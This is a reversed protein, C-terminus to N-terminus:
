VARFHPEPDLDLATNEIAASFGGAPLNQELVRVALVKEQLSIETVHSTRRLEVHFTIEKIKSIVQVNLTQSITLYIKNLQTMPLSSLYNYLYLQQQIFIQCYCQIIRKTHSYATLEIPLFQFSLHSSSIIQNERSYFNQISKVGKM